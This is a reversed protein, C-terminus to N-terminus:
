ICEAMVWVISEQLHHSKANLKAELTLEAFLKTFKDRLGGKGKKLLSTEASCLVVM